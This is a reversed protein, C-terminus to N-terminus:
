STAALLQTLATQAQKKLDDLVAPLHEPDKIADVATYAQAELLNITNRAIRLAHARAQWTQGITVPDTINNMVAWSDAVATEIEDASATGDVLRDAMAAKDAYEALKVEDAFEVVQRRAGTAFEKIQAVAGAKQADLYGAPYEWNGNIMAMGAEPPYFIEDNILYAEGAAMIEEVEAETKLVVNEPLKDGFNAVPVYAIIKGSVNTELVHKM